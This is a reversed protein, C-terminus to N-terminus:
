REAPRYGAAEAEAVTNFWIVNDVSIKNYSNQGQVHYIKSNKNGKIPGQTTDAIYTKGRNTIEETTQVWEVQNNNVDQSESGAQQQNNKNEWILREIGTWIGKNAQRASDELQDLWDSHKLTSISKSVKAYGESVLFANLCQDKFEEYTPNYPDKPLNLWIFSYKYLDGKEDPLNKEIYIKTRGDFKELICKCTEKFLNDPVNNSKPLKRTSVGVLKVERNYGDIDVMFTDTDNIKTLKAKKFDGVADVGDYNNTDFDDFDYDYDKSDDTSSYYHKSEYNSFKSSNYDDDNTVQLCNQCSFLFIFFLIIIVILDKM